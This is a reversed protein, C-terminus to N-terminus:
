IHYRECFHSKPAPLHVQQGELLLLLDQWAIIQPSWRVDNLLVVEADEAGVWAFTTSATNTFTCYIRNLPNLLFTKGCNAPRTLMLNRYKGRGKLLLEKVFSSFQRPPINNNHLTVLTCAESEGHTKCSCETELAENLIEMRSKERRMTAEANEMCWANTILENAAKTGRNMVFEALKTKGERKQANAFAM